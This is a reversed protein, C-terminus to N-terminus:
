RARASTSGSPSRARWPGAGVGARASRPSCRRRAPAREDVGRERRGRHPQGALDTFRGGAEEVIVLLPALDWLAVVPEAAIDAAGEAVLIHSWFDGFGRTRWVRRALAEFEAQLGYESGGSSTATASSRTRSRARGRVGHDAHRRRVRRRRAGGVLHARAGARVRRRRAARRGGRARAVDGLGPHRPRLEQHRRDPRHDLPPALRGRHRVGRRPGRRRAAGRRAPRPDAARGRPRGRLGAHPRAEDRGQPRARPLPAAHGRRRPRRARPRPRPRRRDPSALRPPAAAGPSATRCAPRM